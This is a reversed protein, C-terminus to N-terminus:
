LDFHLHGLGLPPGPFLDYGKLKVSLLHPSVFFKAIVKARELTFVRCGVRLFVLLPGLELDKSPGHHFV